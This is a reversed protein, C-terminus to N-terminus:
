KELTFYWGSAAVSPLVDALAFDIKCLLKSKLILASFPAAHALFDSSGSAIVSFRAALFIQRLQESTFFQVHASGEGANVSQICTDGPSLLKSL